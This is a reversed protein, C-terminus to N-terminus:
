RTDRWGIFPVNDLTFELGALRVAPQCTNSPIALARVTDFIWSTAVASTSDIAAPTAVTLGAVVVAAAALRSSARIPM